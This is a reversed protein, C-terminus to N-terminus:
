VRLEGWIVRLVKLNTIEQRSIHGAAELQNLYVYQKATKFAKKWGQVLCTYPRFLWFKEQAKEQGGLDQMAQAIRGTLERIFASWRRLRAIKILLHLHNGVNAYKYLKVGYKKATEKIIIDICAFAQPRRMGSRRAKLVLHIPLKSDLPRKIKANSNKLLSGGFCDNPRAFGEGMFSLQAKRPTTKRQRKAMSILYNVQMFLVINLM